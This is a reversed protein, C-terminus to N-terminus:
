ISHFFVAHIIKKCDAWTLNPLRMKLRNTTLLLSGISKCFAICIANQDSIQATNGIAEMWAEFKSETGNFMEISTLATQIIIQEIM